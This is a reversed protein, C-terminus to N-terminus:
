DEVEGSFGVEGKPLLLSLKTIENTKDSTAFASKRLVDLLKLIFDIEKGVLKEQRLLTLVAIADSLEKDTGALKQYINDLFALEQGLTRTREFEFDSISGKPM